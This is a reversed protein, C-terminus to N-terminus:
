GPLRGVSGTGLLPNDAPAVAFSVSPQAFGADISLLDTYIRTSDPDSHGLWLQLQKMSVGHILCNVAYSHRFSHVTMEPLVVGALAAREITVSLWNRVAQPTIPKARNKKSAFIPYKKNKCHTVLYREFDAVFGPDLLQVIRRPKKEGLKPRGKKRRKLNVLTILARGDLGKAFDGRTANLVESIRGGCNFLLRFLMRAHDNPCHDLLLTIEPALAYKPLEAGQEILTLALNRFAWHYHWDIKQIPLQGHGATPAPIQHSVPMM